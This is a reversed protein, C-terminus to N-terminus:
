SGNNNVKWGLKLLDDRIEDTVISENVYGIDDGSSNWGGNMGSCYWDIYDGEQRMNAVIGGASRWSCSWKKDQLVPWIENKTFDNNCLAAYLNQAYSDSARVKDLIWQTTRLDYEMNNKQWEPDQERLRDEEEMMDYFDLMANTEPDNELGKERQRYLYGIRQFSRRDPSRSLKM